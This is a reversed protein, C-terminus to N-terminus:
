PEGEDMVVTMAVVMQEAGPQASAWAELPATLTSTTWFTEYSTVWVQTSRAESTATVTAGRSGDDATFASPETMIWNASADEALADAADQAAQQVDVAGGEVEVTLTASGSALTTVGDAQQEVAWGPALSIELTGEAATTEDKTATGTLAGAAYPVVGVMILAIGAIIAAGPLSSRGILRVSLPLRPGTALTETTPAAPEERPPEGASM